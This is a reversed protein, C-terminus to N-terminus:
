HPWTPPEGPESSVTSVDRHKLNSEPKFRVAPASERKFKLNFTLRVSESDSDSMASRRSRSQPRRPLSRATRAKVSTIILGPRSRTRGQVQIRSLRAAAQSDRASELGAAGASGPLPRRAVPQPTVTGARPAFKHSTHRDSAGPVPSHRVPLGGLPSEAESGSGRSPSGGSAAPPGAGGVTVRAM